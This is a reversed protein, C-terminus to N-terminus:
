TALKSMQDTNYEQTLPHKLVGKNMHDLRPWAFKPRHGLQIKNVRSIIEEEWDSDDWYKEAAGINRIGIISLHIKSINFTCHSSRLKSFALFPPSSRMFASIGRWISKGKLFIIDSQRSFSFCSHVWTETEIFMLLM